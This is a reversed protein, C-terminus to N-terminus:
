EAATNSAILLKLSAVENQLRLIKQEMGCLVEFPSGVYAGLLDYGEDSIFDSEDFVHDRIYALKDQIRDLETKM